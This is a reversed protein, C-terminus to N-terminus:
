ANSIGYLYATSYQVFSSGNDTELKIANIASSSSWLGSVPTNYVTTTNNELVSDAQYNKNSSSTYIPIYISINSFVGSTAVPGPVIGGNRTSGSAASVSTGALEILRYTYNATDNNFTTLITRGIAGGSDCRGSFLLHLDTYTSPISSFTISAASGSNLAVSNILTYTPM